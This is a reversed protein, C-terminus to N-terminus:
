VAGRVIIRRDPTLELSGERLLRLLGEKIEFESFRNRLHELVDSPRTTGALVEALIQSRVEESPATMPELGFVRAATSLPRRRPRTMQTDVIYSVSDSDLSIPWVM